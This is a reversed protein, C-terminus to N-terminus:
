IAIKLASFFFSAALMLGLYIGGIYLVIKPILPQDNDFNQDKDKNESMIFITKMKNYPIKM